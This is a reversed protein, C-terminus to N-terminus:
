AHIPEKKDGRNNGYNNEGNIERRIVPIGKITTLEDLSAAHPLLVPITFRIRSINQSSETVEDKSGGGINLLGAVKIGGEVGNNMSDKTETTVAVDFDINSIHAMGDRMEVACAHNKALETLPAITAYDQVCEQTEKVASVIDTLATKIFEKLEM